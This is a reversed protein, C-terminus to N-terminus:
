ARRARIREVDREAAALLTSGDADAGDLFAVGVTAGLSVSSDDFDLPMAVSGAIRDLLSGTVEPALGSAVIVFRDEDLRGLVDNSRVLRDLRRAVECLVQEAGAADEAVLRAHDDIAVVVVAGASSPRSRDAVMTDLLQLVAERRPLQQEGGDEDAVDVGM